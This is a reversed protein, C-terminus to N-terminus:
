ADRGDKKIEFNKVPVSCNELFIKIVAGSKIQEDVFIDTIHFENVLGRLNGISAKAKLNILTHLCDVFIFNEDNTAQLIYSGSEKFNRSVNQTIMNIVNQNLTTTIFLLNKERLKAINRLIKDFKQKAEFKLNRGDAVIKNPNQQFYKQMIAVPVDSYTKLDDFFNQRRDDPISSTLFCPNTTPIVDFNIRQGALKAHSLFNKGKTTHVIVLSTGRNDFFKPAFNQVGWADGITVDSKGNPFKFKCEHCSPREIVSQLFNRLYLDQGNAKAYYGCDYFTLELHNNTWGFRKSRFNVNAIDHGMARYELYSEWLYPSPTGHCIIDVTLLNSYDKGLFSKLGACQCPTGSFLVQRGNELEVKVRKYVDGIQSQVYKSGRLNELEDFNEASTHVVHWNENFGAGFIIGGTSLILESLATFTGGSSSHRRIKEDLNITVFVEPLKDVTNAKFNLSPCTSDCRGCQICIEHNIKPYAFGEDDRNMSICKKPCVNACAECGFCDARSTAIMTEIKM